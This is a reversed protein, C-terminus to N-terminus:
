CSVVGCIELMTKALARYEQAMPSDPFAEV